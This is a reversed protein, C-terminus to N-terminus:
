QLGGATQYILALGESLGGVAERVKRMAAALRLDREPEVEPTGRAGFLRELIGPRPPQGDFNRPLDIDAIFMQAANLVMCGFSNRTIVGAPKGSSGPISRLIPERLPRDAYGYRDLQEGSRFREAIVRARERARSRADENDKDSFGWCAFGEHEERAWFKPFYM